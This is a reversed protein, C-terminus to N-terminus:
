EGPHRASSGSRRAQLDYGSFLSKLAATANARKVSAKRDLTTLDAQLDSLRVAGLLHGGDRLFAERAYKRGTHPSVHWGLWLASHGVLKPTGSRSCRARRM